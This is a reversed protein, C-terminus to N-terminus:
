ERRLFDQQQSRSLRLAAGLEAYITDLTCEGTTRGANKYARREAEIRARAFAEPTVAILGAQFLRRGLALFLAEPSGVARTLLTDFVDFSAIQTMPWTKVKVRM